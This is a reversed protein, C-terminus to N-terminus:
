RSSLTTLSVLLLCQSYPYASELLRYTTKQNETTSTDRGGGEKYVASRWNEPTKGQFHRCSVGDKWLWGEVLRAGVLRRPFLNSAPRVCSVGQPQHLVCSSVPRFSGSHRRVRVLSQPHHCGATMRQM